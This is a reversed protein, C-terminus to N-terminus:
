TQYRDQSGTMKVFSTEGSGSGTFLSMPAVTPVAGSGSASGLFATAAGVAPGDTPKTGRRYYLTGFAGLWRSKYGISM